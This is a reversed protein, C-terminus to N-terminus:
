LFVLFGYNLPPPSFLVLLPLTLAILRCVHILFKEVLLRSWTKSNSTVGVLGDVKSNDIFVSKRTLRPSQSEEYEEIDDFKTM